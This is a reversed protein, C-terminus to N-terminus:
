RCGHGQPCGPSPPLLLRVAQERQDILAQLDQDSPPGSGGGMGGMGAWCTPSSLSLCLLPPWVSCVASWGSAHERPWVAWERAGAFTCTENQAGSCVGVRCGLLHMAASRLTRHRRPPPSMAAAAAALAARRARPPPPPARRAALPGLPPPPLLLLLLLLLWRDARTLRCRARQRAFRPSRTVMSVGGGTLSGRRGDSATWSQTRDDVTVGKDKLEERIQPDIFDIV